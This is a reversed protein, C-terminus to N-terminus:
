LIYFILAVAFKQRQHHHLPEIFSIFEKGGCCFSAHCVLQFKKKGTCSGSHKWGDKKNVHLITVAQCWFAERIWFEGLSLFHPVPFHLPLSPSPLFVCCFFSCFLTLTLTYLLYSCLSQSFVSCYSLPPLSHLVLCYVTYSPLIIIFSLLLLSLRESTAKGLSPPNWLLWIPLNKRGEQWLYCSYAASGKCYVRQMCCKCICNM